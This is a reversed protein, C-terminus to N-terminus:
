GEDAAGRFSIQNKIADPVPVLAKYALQFQDVRLRIASDYHRGCGPCTQPAFGTMTTADPHRSRAAEPDRDREMDLIVKTPCHACAICVYRLDALSVVFERQM